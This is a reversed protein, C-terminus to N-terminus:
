AYLKVGLHEINGKVFYGQMINQILGGGMKKLQEKSNASFLQIERKLKLEYKGIELDDDKGYIFLDIDSNKYWDSRVMSGFIIVTKAKSLTQLHNLFGSDYFLNLAYLRKRNRYSPSEYNGIYYPMKGKEKIRKVIGEKMMRKLWKNAKDRSLGGEKLLEEFHWHRSPYNFFIELLRNEKSPSPM